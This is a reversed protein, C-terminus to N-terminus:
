KFKLVNRDCVIKGDIYKLEAMQLVSKRNAIAQKYISKAKRGPEDYERWPEVHYIIFARNNKVVVSCHRARSNDLPRKGSNLLIIGQYTWNKGNDSQYVMLGEHPDTIMFYKNKWKFIYPAEEFKQGTVKENFVDSKSFGKAEWAKFDKSAFHYLNNKKENIKKAKFWVHVSDNQTYVTADLADLSDTHMQAVKQWGDIPKDLTTKYHVISGKGGWPGQTTNTDPKWTVFMHMQNKHVTIAPAWFTAPMDKSGGIGDFKCYGWFEWKQLNKSRIIGLPTATFLNEVTARRSTYYIYYYKDHPNYVIEPDCSGHYNPDVFLPAPTQQKTQALLMVAKTLVFATLLYKINKFFM